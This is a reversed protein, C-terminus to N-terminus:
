SFQPEDLKGWTVCGTVRQGKLARQLEAPTLKGTSDGCKRVGAM